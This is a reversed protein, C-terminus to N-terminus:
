FLVLFQDRLKVAAQVSAASQNKEGERSASCDCAHFSSEAFFQRLERDNM